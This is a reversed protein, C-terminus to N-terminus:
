FTTSDRNYYIEVDNMLREENNTVWEKTTRRENMTREENKMQNTSTKLSKLKIWPGKPTREITKHM